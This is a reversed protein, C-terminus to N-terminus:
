CVVALQTVIAGSLLSSQQEQDASGRVSCSRGGCARPRPLASRGPVGIVEGAPRLPGTVRTIPPREPDATRTSIGAVREWGVTPRGPRVCGGHPRSRERRRFEGGAGPMWSPQPRGRGAQRVRCYGGCYGGGAHRRRGHPPRCGRSFRTCKSAILQCARGALRSACGSTRPM